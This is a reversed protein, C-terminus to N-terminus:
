IWKVQQADVTAGDVYLVASEYDCFSDKLITVQSTSYFFSFSKILIDKGVGGKLLITHSDLVVYSMKSKAGYICDAHASLGVVAFLIAVIIKRM